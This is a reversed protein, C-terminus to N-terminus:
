RIAGGDVWSGMDSVWIDHKVEEEAWGWSKNIWVRIKEVRNVERGSYVSETINERSRDDPLRSYDGDPRWEWGSKDVEWAAALDACKM